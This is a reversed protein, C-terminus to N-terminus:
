IAEKKQNLFQQRAMYILFLFLLVWFYPESMRRKELGVKESYDASMIEAQKQLLREEQAKTELSIYTTSHTLINQSFSARLAKLWHEKKRKPNLDNLDHFLRLQLANLYPNESFDSNLTALNDFSILSPQDDNNLLSSQGNRSFEVLEVTAPLTKKWHSHEILNHYPFANEMEWSSYKGTFRNNLPAYVVVYPISKQNRHAFQIQAIAKRYNFGSQKPPTQKGWNVDADVYLIKAKQKVDSSLTQFDERFQERFLKGETTNDVLFYYNVPVQIKPLNKKINSPVYFTNPRLETVSQALPKVAILIPTDNISFNVPARHYLTFGSTRTEDKQFPFSKM